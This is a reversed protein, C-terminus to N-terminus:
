AAHSRAQLRPDEEFSQGLRYGYYRRYNGHVAAHRRHELAPAQGAQPGGTCRGEAPGAAAQQQQGAAGLGALSDGQGHTSAADQVESERESVHEAAAQNFVLVGTRCTEGAQGAAAGPPLRLSASIVAASASLDHRSRAGLRQAAAAGAGSARRADALADAKAAPQGTLAQLAPGSKGGAEALGGPGETDGQTGAPARQMAAMALAPEEGAQGGEVASAYQEAAAGRQQSVPPQLAPRSGFRSAPRPLVSAACPSSQVAQSSQQMDCRGLAASGAVTDPGAGHTAAPCADAPTSTLRNAAGSCSAARSGPLDQLAASAAACDREVLLREGLGASVLAAAAAEAAAVFSHEAPEHATPTRALAAAAMRRRKLPKEGEADAQAARRRRQRSPRPARGRVLLPKCRHQEAPPEASGAAAGGKPVSSATAGGKLLHGPDGGGAENAQVSVALKSCSHGDTFDSSIAATATEQCVRWVAANESVRAKNQKYRQYRRKKRQRKSLSHEGAPIRGDTEFTAAKGQRAKGILKDEERPM